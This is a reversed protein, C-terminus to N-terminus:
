YRGEVTTRKLFRRLEDPPRTNLLDDATLWAKRAQAIGYPMAALGSLSHADTNVCIPVGADRAARCHEASLDMRDRKCDLELAIGAKAAAAIIAHVDVDLAPFMGLARATPHGLIACAPHSIARLLREMQVPKALQFSTHVSCLVYDLRALVESPLGLAGDELIEVECGRLLCPGSAKNRANLAAIAEGQALLQRAPMGFHSGPRASHDSIGLCAYGRMAAALAMDEMSAAGDTWTTHTHLDARIDALEVLQPLKGERAARVEDYPWDLGERLEAAIFPLGLAAYIAAEDGAVIGAGCHLGREDLVWGRGAALGRLLALHKQSGTTWLLVAGFVNRPVSRLTVRLGNALRLSAHGGGAALLAIGPPAALRATIGHADEGEGVQLLLELSDLAALRRRAAGTQVVRQVGPVAALVDVLPAAYEEAEALFVGRRGALFSAVAEGLRDELKPGFGPLQRVKGQRAAQLLEEASGIALGSWLAWARKPGIGEVFRLGLAERPVNRVLVELAALRGTALLESVAATMRPGMGPLSGLALGGSLMEPLERPLVALWEAARRYAKARSSDPTAMNQPNPRGGLGALEALEAADRLQRVMSLTSPSM